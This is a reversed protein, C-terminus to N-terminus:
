KLNKLLFSYRPKFQMHHFDVQHGQTVLHRFYMNHHRTRCCVPRWIQSLLRNARVLQRFHHGFPNKKHTPNKTVVNWGKQGRHTFSRQINIDKQPKQYLLHTITHTQTWSWFHHKLRKKQWYSDAYHGGLGQFHLVHSKSQSLHIFQTFLVDSSNPAM